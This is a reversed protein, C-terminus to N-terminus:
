KKKWKPIRRLRRLVETVQQARTKKLHKEAWRREEVLLDEARDLRNGRWMKPKVTAPDQAARAYALIDGIAINGPDGHSNEAVHQHGLVGVAHRWEAFTLRQGHNNGFSSPYPLWGRPAADKLPLNPCEDAVDALTRGLEKLLWEPADPWFIYDRGAVFDGSGNWSRRHKPDCTGVLEIQIVNLTNTEVGGTLNRLARSSMDLPFHQRVDLRCGRLNPKATLNPATAGGDYGPWDISETTHLCVVNPRMLSGRFRDAFWQTRRDARGLFLM